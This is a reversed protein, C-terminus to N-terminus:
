LDMLLRFFPGEMKPVVLRVLFTSSHTRYKYKYIYRYKSGYKYTYKYRYSSYFLRNDAFTFGTKHEREGRIDALCGVCVHTCGPVVDGYKKAEIEHKNSIKICNSNKHHSKLMTSYHLMAKLESLLDLNQQCNM